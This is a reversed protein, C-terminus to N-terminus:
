MCNNTENQKRRVIMFLTKNEPDYFDIRVAEYGNNHLISFYKSVSIKNTRNTWEKWGGSSYFYEDNQQMRIMDDIIETKRDLYLEDLLPLNETEASAIDFILSSKMDNVINDATIM